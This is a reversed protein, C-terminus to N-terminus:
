RRGDRREARRLGQRQRHLRAEAQGPQRRLLRLRLLRARESRRRRRQRAGRRRREEHLRQPQQEAHRRDALTFYDFTGSATGPGFLALPSIPFARDSRTGDRRGERRRRTGVHAQARRRDPLRRVHEDRNVVVSLATSRSRCSSSSSAVPGASGSKPPTSRGRRAPSTSSAPASSRSAAAPAPSRRRRSSRRIPRRSVRGGDVTSVPLVRARDTSRSAEASIRRRRPALPRRRPAATVLATLMPADACAACGDVALAACACRVDIM